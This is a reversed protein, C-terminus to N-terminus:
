RAGVSAGFEPVAVISLSLNERLCETAEQYLEIALEASERRVPPGVLERYSADEPDSLVLQVLHM